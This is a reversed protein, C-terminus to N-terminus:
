YRFKDNYCDKNKRIVFIIIKGNFGYDFKLYIPMTNEVM